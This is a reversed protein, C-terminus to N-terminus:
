ACGANGPRRNSSYARLTVVPATGAGGSVVQAPEAYVVPQKLPQAINWTTLAEPPLSLTANSFLRAQKNLILVAFAAGIVILTRLITTIM